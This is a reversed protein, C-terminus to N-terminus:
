VRQLRHCWLGHSRWEHGSCATRSSDGGCSSCASPPLRSGRSRPTAPPACCRARLPRFLRVCYSATPSRRCCTRACIRHATSLEGFSVTPSTWSRQLGNGERSVGLQPDDGRDEFDRLTVTSGQKLVLPNRGGTLGQPSDLDAGTMRALNNAEDFPVAAYGYSYQAALYYRTVPDASALSGFIADLVRGQVLALFREAPLMEGNDQEVREYRTLARLGAGVTAIVLDAGTVGLQQLRELREAIIRDLEAMVDAESGVGADADRRRAVLFISSALSATGQGVAREPMETDLPWAETITFGATRLADVLTAWGLTTKHAYICVLPAGPKLVRHAEAFAGAMM